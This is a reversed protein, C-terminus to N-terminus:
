RVVVATRSGLALFDPPLTVPELLPSCAVYVFWGAEALARMDALRKDSASRIESSFGLWLKSQWLKVTRPDLATFYNAMQRTYKTCLLGIHKSAALTTCVQNIDKKLGVRLLYIAM